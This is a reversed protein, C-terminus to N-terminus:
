IYDALTLRSLRATANFHLELQRQAAELRTATEFPNAQEIENLALSLSTKQAATAAMLNEVTEEEYGLRSQLLAMGKSANLFQVGAEQLLLGQDPSSLNAGLRGVIAGLAAAAMVERIEPDDAKVIMSIKPGNPGLRTDAVTQGGLYGVTEFGGGPANFWSEVASKVAAPDTPDPITAVIESLMFDPSAVPVTDVAVGSFVSRGNWTQNLTSVLSTFQGSAKDVATAIQGPSSTASLTLFDRAATNASADITSLATQVAGLSLALQRGSALVADTQSLSHRLALVERADGELAQNLDVKKGTALENGLRALDSKIRGSNRVSVFHQAMDGISVVTM